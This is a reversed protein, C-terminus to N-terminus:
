TALHLNLDIVRTPLLLSEWSFGLIVIKFNGTLLEGVFKSLPILSRSFTMVEKEKKKKKEKLDEKSVIVIRRALSHPGCLNCHAFLQVAGVEM